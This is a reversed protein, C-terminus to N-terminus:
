KEAAFYAIYLRKGVVAYCLNDEMIVEPLIKNMKDVIIKISRDSAELQYGHSKISARLHQSAYSHKGACGCCCRNNMGSYVQAVKALEIKTKM